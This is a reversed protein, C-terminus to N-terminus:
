KPLLNQEKRRPKVCAMPSVTLSSVLKKALHRALVPNLLHAHVVISRM